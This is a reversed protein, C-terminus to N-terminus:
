SPTQQVKSIAVELSVGEKNTLFLIERRSNRHLASRMLCASLKLQEKYSHSLLDRDKKLLRKRTMDRAEETPVGEQVVKTVHDQFLIDNQNWVTNIIMDIGITDDKDDTEIDTDSDEVSDKDCNCEGKETHRGM